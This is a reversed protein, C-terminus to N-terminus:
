ALTLNSVLLVILALYGIALWAPSPAKSSRRSRYMYSVIAFAVMNLSLYLAFTDTAAQTLPNLSWLVVISTFQIALLFIVQLALLSIGIRL